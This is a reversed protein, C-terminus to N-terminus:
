HGRHKAHKKKQRLLYRRETEQEKSVKIAKKKMIKKEEFQRKLDQQAKTGISSNKIAKHALRQAWKPNIHYEKQKEISTKYFKLKSFKFNVMNLIQPMHPMSTGLNVQAVYYESGDTREFIAKYFPYDFIITLAGKIM